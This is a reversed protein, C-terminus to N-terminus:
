KKQSIWKSPIISINVTSFYEFRERDFPIGIHKHVGRMTGEDSLSDFPVTMVNTFRDKMDEILEKAGTLIDGFDEGKIDLIGFPFIKHLSSLVPLIGREVIVIPVDFGFQCEIEDQYQLLASDASGSIPKGKSELFSKADSISDIIGTFEHVCYSGETNFYHSSWATRTRPLGTIFFHSM